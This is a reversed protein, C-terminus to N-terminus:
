GRRAVGAGLRGLGPPAVVLPCGAPKAAPMLSSSEVSRVTAQIEVRRQPRLGWLVAATTIVSCDIASAACCKDPGDGSAVSRHAPAKFGKRCLSIVHAHRPEFRSRQRTM